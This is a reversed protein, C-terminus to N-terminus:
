RWDGQLTFAAWFYPSKWKDQKWMELQAQRLAQAVPMGQSLMKTYFSSMLAATAEDDVSWLSVVLRPTGAYMFGRTLGVLGEGRVSGGLGTQCASLVVVQANLSLNFIDHLRLFGDVLNGKDDVLSLLVGSLEPASSSAFGHTAFHVARYQTLDTNNLTTRSADFDFAQMTQPKPANALIAEAEKRTGTLRPIPHKIGVSDASRSTTFTFLRTEQQPPSPNGTVRSDDPEFVPDAILAVTKPAPQRPSDQRLIALTSASPLNIIEHSVLLPTLDNPAPAPTPAPAPAPLASFPIYNLVGDPVILLRKGPLKDAVQGLLMQSLKAVSANVKPIDPTVILNRSEGRYAPNQMLQYFPEAVKEIEARPPLEYATLSDPTVAWLFSRDKGLSYQLLLTNKDLLQQQVQQATLPQPQTLAAYRPSTKRIEARLEDLERLLNDLEQKIATEQQETHEGSFLEMQRKATANIRQQLNSEKERLQPTIGQRINAKAETLLELLTRARARESANFAKADYGKDPNQRHLEMLLDIYFEYGNQNQAFYSQRLKESDIKTRLDEIIAIAAEIDTLAETLNGQRRKTVALNSLTVAEEEKDGVLRALPLSQSYYDLAKQKDGLDDYVMGINNLTGAEGEKDGVQRRLPLSQNFYDLAKQKDGLANYVAGINNLTAAEGAKDGVLQTLPLSQSYYDLAKQKDGLDDYVLGMNNLTAAEGAKDGVLRRLPLSQSYYDLARQKDGLADYVGGINTLTTAEGAKDGVLRLLPLSQNLYDLAKQKDGLDSYVAGINNLTAAEQAKDGVLRTLPLSQNFYDLAKQKDGLANYVAGINNLTTAEGPKDGVLRSLPLSQSFYDLAKQKDGLDDYVMGINNLTGAERAKDGVQRFLPLSQSLYALAKQKDGLDSYVGGINNLTVAEQGKDGVLRTLPLSQSYYDLAKQKDGLSSYIAGIGTLTAAEGAKEGVQRFLPLSQNLCDLAKQKDGLDNYVGGINNLTAAEGAKEGVQRFLPLSQSYYDLAKQQDGLDSYVRGMGLLTLAERGADGAARYLQRAAEWKELAARLTEATGQEFLQGGELLLRDAEPSSSNQAIRGDAEMDPALLWREGGAAGAVAPTSGILVSVSVAFWRCGFGAFWGRAM